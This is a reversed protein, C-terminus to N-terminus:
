QQHLELISANEHSEYNEPVEVGLFKGLKKWKDPDELRGIHLSNPSRRHFFDQVEINHLRYIDKYHKAHGIIKMTKVSSPQSEEEGDIANSHLLDFYELERRYVKCHIRTRGIVYGKSHNLMSQFWEDPDRTFLIFKSNTFRSFLVKYFDPLFWPSDEFANASRFRPSSFIKEFDGEYWSGSWNNQQDAPWGAWRFGFDRFFRGVSTTGTRQMSLCFIREAKDDFYFKSDSAIVTKNKGVNFVHVTPRTERKEHKGYRLYHVLPNLGSGKADAYADLYWQSCFDPSPDRGEFGGYRLYHLLPDAKAQVVDPNNALYWDRDFAGSTRILHLDRFLSWGRNVKKSIFTLINNM